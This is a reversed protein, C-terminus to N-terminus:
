DNQNEQLLYSYAKEFSNIDFNYQTEGNQDLEQSKHIFSKALNVKALFEINGCIDNVLDQLFEGFIQAQDIQTEDQNFDNKEISM